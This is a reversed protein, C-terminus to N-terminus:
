LQIKATAVPFDSHHVIPIVNQDKETAPEYAVTTQDSESTDGGEEEQQGEQSEENQIQMPVIHYGIVGLLADAHVPTVLIMIIFYASIWGQFSKPKM